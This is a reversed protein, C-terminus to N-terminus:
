YTVSAFLGDLRLGPRAIVVFKSIASLAIVCDGCILKIKSRGTPQPTNQHAGDQTGSAIILTM